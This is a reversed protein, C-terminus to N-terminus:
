YDNWCPRGASGERYCGVPCLYENAVRTQPCLAAGLAVHGM